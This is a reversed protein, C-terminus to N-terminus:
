LLAFLSSAFLFLVFTFFLPNLYLLYVSHWLIIHHHNLYPQYRENANLTGLICTKDSM